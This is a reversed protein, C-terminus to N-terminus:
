LTAAWYIAYSGVITIIVMTFYGVRWAFKDRRLEEERRSQFSESKPQYDYGRYLPKIEKKKSKSIAKQTMEKQKRHTYLSNWNSM